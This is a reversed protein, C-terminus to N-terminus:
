ALRLHAEVPARCETNHGSQGCREHACRGGDRCSVLHDDESTRAVYARVGRLHEETLARLDDGDGALRRRFLHRRGAGSCFSACM